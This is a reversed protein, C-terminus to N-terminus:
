EFTHLLRHIRLIGNRGPRQARGIVQKELEPNIKHILIIDTTNEFNLGCGYMSSDALLITADGEKYAKVAKDIAEVSGGDLSVFKIEKYQFFGELDKFVNPYDSFIIIKIKNNPNNKKVLIEILDKFVELKYKQPGDDKERNKSSKTSVLKREQLFSNPFELKAECSPCTIEKLRELLEKSFICQCCNSILKNELELEVFSSCCIQREKLRKYITEKLGKAALINKHAENAQIM